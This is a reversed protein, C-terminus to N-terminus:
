ALYCVGRYCLAESRKVLQIQAQKLAKEKQLRARIMELATMTRYRNNGKNQKGRTARGSVM